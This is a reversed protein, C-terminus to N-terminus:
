HTPTQLWAVGKSASTYYHERLLRRPDSARHIFLQKLGATEDLTVAGRTLRELSEIRRLLDDESMRFVRGPSGCGFAVDEVSISGPIANGRQVYTLLAYGFVGLPLTPRDQRTLRYSQTLPDQALLGLEVLPCDLADERAVDSHRSRAYTLIFCDVDRKLSATSVRDWSRQAVFRELQVQLERRTFQLDPYQNFIWWWTTATEPQSALRWHLLWLTGPDELFPDWGEDGLLDNGFATARLVRGRNNATAPDEEIVGLVLAWHRMSAVMNKGVGFRVMADDRGFIRGDDAVADLAKKPWTYRFPFTQHGAFSPREQIV